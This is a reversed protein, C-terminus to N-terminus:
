RQKNFRMEQMLRELRDVDNEFSYVFWEKKYLCAYCHQLPEFVLNFATGVETGGLMLKQNEARRTGGEGLYVCTDGDIDLFTHGISFSSSLIKEVADFLPHKEM